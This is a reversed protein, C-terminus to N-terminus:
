LSFRLYKPLLMKSLSNTAETESVQYSLFDVITYVGPYGYKIILQNPSEAIFNSFKLIYFNSFKLIVITRDISAWSAYIM